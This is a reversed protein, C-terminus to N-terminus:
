GREVQWYEVDVPTSRGFISVSLKLKGREPDISEVTGEFSEFPGEKITLTEGINFDVKPKPLEEGPQFQMLMGQAEADSLPLPRDPAGGIFGIVGQTERIYYWARSDLKGEADFLKARVLIYGPFSKRNLTTKKGRRVESVKEVPVQADYVVDEVADQKRRKLLSECVKFEQGSLTQVVFWQGQDQESM